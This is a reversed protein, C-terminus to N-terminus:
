MVTYWLADGNEHGAALTTVATSYNNLGKSEDREDMVQGYEELMSESLSDLHATEEGDDKRSVFM